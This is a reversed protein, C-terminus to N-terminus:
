GRARRLRCRLVPCRRLRRIRSGDRQRRRHHDRDARDFGSITGSITYDGPDGAVLTYSFSDEDLLTFRISDDGVNVAASSLSSAMYSFGAPLSEEVSAATGFGSADISVTIQEGTTVSSRSISRQAGLPPDIVDISSDGGTDRADRNSDSVTGSFQYSGAMSPATVTYSFTKDGGLITFTVTQGDTTSAEDSRGFSFGDPLTEQVQGFAGLGSVSIEVELEAGTIVPNTSFSRTASHESANVADPLLLSLGAVGVIALVGLLMLAKKVM